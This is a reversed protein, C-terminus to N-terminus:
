KYVFSTYFNILTDILAQRSPEPTPLISRVDTVESAMRNLVYPGEVGEEGGDPELCVCRSGGALHVGALRSDNM